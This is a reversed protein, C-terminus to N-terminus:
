NAVYDAFPTTGVCHTKNFVRRPQQSQPMNMLTLSMMVGGDGVGAQAKPDLSQKFIASQRKTHKPSYSQNLANKM